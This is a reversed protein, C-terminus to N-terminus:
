YMQSFDGGRIGCAVTFDREEWGNEVSISFLQDGDGRWVSPGDSSLMM